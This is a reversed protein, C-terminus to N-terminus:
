LSEWANTGSNWERPFDFNEIDTTFGFDESPDDVSRGDASSTLRSVVGTSAGEPSDETIFKVVSSTENPDNDLLVYNSTQLTSDELLIRIAEGVAQGSGALHLDTVVEKIVASNDKIDPYIFGKMMFALSWVIARRTTFDGDYQDEVSASNLIVPVDTKIGMDAITNLTVTFEPTFYPLIQELIQTGDDQNRVLIYCGVDFNYPVPNYQKKLTGSNTGKKLNTGLTNLKRVPDYTVATIEFGIRPTTIATQKTLTPDQKLRTLFKGKSGYSVPVKMQEVVVDNSNTRKVWIDNFITGFLVVMKRITKHYFYTGLM